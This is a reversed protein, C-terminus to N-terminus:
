VLQKYPHKHWPLVSSMALDSHQGQSLEVFRERQGNRLIAACCIYISPQKWSMQETWASLHPSNLYTLIRM